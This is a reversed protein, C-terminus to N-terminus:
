SGAAAQSGAGISGTVRGAEEVGGDASPTAGQAGTGRKGSNGSKRRAAKIGYAKRYAKTDLMLAARKKSRIERLAASLVERNTAM